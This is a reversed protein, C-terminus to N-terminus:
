DYIAIWFKHMVINSNKLKHRGGEGGKQWLAESLIASHKQFILYKGFKFCISFTKSEGRKESFM